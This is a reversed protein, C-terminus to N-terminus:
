ALDAAAVKAHYGLEFALASDLIRMELLKAEGRVVSRFLARVDFTDAAGQGKAQM